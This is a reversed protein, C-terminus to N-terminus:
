LKKSVHPSSSLDEDNVGSKTDTRTTAPHHVELRTAVLALVFASQCRLGAARIRRLNTLLFLQGEPPCAAPICHISSADDQPHDCPLLDQVFAIADDLGRQDILGSAAEPQETAGSSVKHERRSRMGRSWGTCDQKPLRLPEAQVDTLVFHVLPNRKLEVLRCGCESIERYLCTCVGQGAREGQSKM